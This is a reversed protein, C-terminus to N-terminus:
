TDNPDSAQAEDPWVRLLARAMVIPGGLPPMGDPHLECTLWWGNPLKVLHMDQGDGAIPRKARRTGPYAEPDLMFDGLASQLSEVMESSEAELAKQITRAGLLLWKPEPESPSM